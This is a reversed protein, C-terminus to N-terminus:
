RATLGIQSLEPASAGAAPRQDFVERPEQIDTVVRCTFGADACARLADGPEQGTLDPVERQEREGEGLSVDLRVESGPPVRTGPDPRQDVVNGLEDASEVPFSDPFLGADVLEEVADPYETGVLDPMETGEPTTEVTQTQTVTETPQPGTSVVIAVRGGRNLRSGARPDQQVVIGSPEDSSQRVVEVAFGREELTARADAERLRVVNPVTVRQRSEQQGDDGRLAFFAIIGAVILLLVILWIWWYERYWPPPPGRRIETTREEM